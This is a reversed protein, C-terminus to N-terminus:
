EYLAVIALAVYTAILAVGEFMTAAGDSTIQWVSIATLALAGILVPTMQYTLHHPFAFSCLVLLPFLFVAIQSVSNKVVSIALEHHGKWALMVGATNEVANGAVAVLVLGAFTESIHFADIAPDLGSVFWESVFAAGVGAAALLLAAVWVPVHNTHVTEFQADGLANPDAPVISTTGGFHEGALDSSAAKARVTAHDSGGVVAAAAAAELRPARLYGWVWTVYVALLAISAGVSIEDIHRSAHDHSSVSIGVLVIIFVACLLLTATDNPLRPSFRMERIPSRAAGAVITMGLVLLANALISGVISTSAVVVKGDALAFLVVFFEPLNGLTSQMIGTAEPGLREGLSETAFSVLWAMGALAVTAAVFAAVGVEGFGYHLWGAIATVVAILLVAINQTRSLGPM